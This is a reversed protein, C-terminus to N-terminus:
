RDLLFKLPNVRPSAPM